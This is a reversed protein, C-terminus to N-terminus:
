HPQHGPVVNPQKVKEIEIKKNVKIGGSSVNWLRRIINNKYKQNQPFREQLRIQM